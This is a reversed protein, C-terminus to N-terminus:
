SFHTTHLNGALEVHTKHKKGHCMQRVHHESPLSAGQKQCFEEAYAYTTEKRGKEYFKYCGYTRIAASCCENNVFFLPELPEFGPPCIAQCFFKSPDDGITELTPM